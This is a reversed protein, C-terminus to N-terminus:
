VVHGGTDKRNIVTGLGEAPGEVAHLVHQAPNVGGPKPDHPTGPGAVDGVRKSRRDAPGSTRLDGSRSSEQNRM